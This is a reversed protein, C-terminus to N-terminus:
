VREKGIEEVMEIAFKLAVCEGWYVAQIPSDKPARHWEDNAEKLDNRLNKLIQQIKNTDSM